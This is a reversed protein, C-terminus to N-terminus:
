SYQASHFCVVLPLTEVLSFLTLQAQPDREGIDSVSEPDLVPDCSFVCRGESGRNVTQVQPARSCCEACAFSDIVDNFDLKRDVKCRPSLIILSSKIYQPPELLKDHM